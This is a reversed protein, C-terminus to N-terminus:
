NKNKLTYYGLVFRILWPVFTIGLLYKNLLIVTILTEKNDNSGYNNYTDYLMVIPILVAIFDCLWKFYDNYEIIDAKFLNLMKITAIWPIIVIFFMGLYKVVNKEIGLSEIWPM